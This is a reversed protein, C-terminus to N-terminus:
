PLQPLGRPNNNHNVILVATLAGLSSLVTPNFAFNTIGGAVATGKLVRGLGHNWAMDKLEPCINDLESQSPTYELALQYQNLIEPEHIYSWTKPSVYYFARLAQPNSWSEECLEWQTNLVAFTKYGEDTLLHKPEPFNSVGDEYDERGSACATLLLLLAISGLINLKTSHRM